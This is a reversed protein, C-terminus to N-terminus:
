APAGTGAPARFFPNAATMAFTATGTGAASVTNVKSYYGDFYVDIADTIEQHGSM